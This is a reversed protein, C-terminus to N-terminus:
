VNPYCPYSVKKFTVNEELLFDHQSIKKDLLDFQFISESKEETETKIANLRFGGLSFENEDVSSEEDGELISAM